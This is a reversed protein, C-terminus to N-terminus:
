HFHKTQDATHLDLIDRVFEALFTRGVPVADRGTHLSRPSQCYKHVTHADSAFAQSRRHDSPVIPTQAGSVSVFGSRGARIQRRRLMHHRSTSPVSM